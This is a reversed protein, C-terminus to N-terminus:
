AELPGSAHWAVDGSGQVEILTVRNDAPPEYVLLGQVPIVLTTTDARTIRVLFSANETQLVILGALQAPQMPLTVYSAPSNIPVVVGGAHTKPCMNKGRISLDLTPGTTTDADGNSCSSDASLTVSLTGDLEVKLASM